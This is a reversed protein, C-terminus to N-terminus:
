RGSVRALTGRYTSTYGPAIMVEIILPRHDPAVIGVLHGGAALDLHHYYGRFDDVVGAYEGDVYVEARWPQVDLQLGGILGTELPLALIETPTAYTQAPM